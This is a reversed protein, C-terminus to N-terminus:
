FSGGSILNDPFDYTASAPTAGMLFSARSAEVMLDRDGYGNLADKGSGGFLKDTSSLQDNGNASCLEM